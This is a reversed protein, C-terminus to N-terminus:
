GAQLEPPARWFTIEAERGMAGVVMGAEVYVPPSWRTDGDFLANISRGVEHWEGDDIRRVAATFPSPRAQPTTGGASDGELWDGFAVLERLRLDESPASVDTIAGTHTDVMTGSSGSTTYRSTVVKGSGCSLGSGVDIDTPETRQATWSSAGPAITWVTTNREGPRPSEVAAIQPEVPDACIRVATPDTWPGHVTTWSEDEHDWAITTQEYGFAFVAHGRGGVAIHEGSAVAAEYYRDVPVPPV